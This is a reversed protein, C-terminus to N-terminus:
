GAKGLEHQPTDVTTDTGNKNGPYLYTPPQERIRKVRTLLEECLMNMSEVAKGRKKYRGVPLRHSVAEPYHTADPITVTFVDDCYYNRLVSEFTKHLSRRTVKNLLYGLLRLKPNPGAIAEDIIQQIHVVGQVGYDEPQFPVLVFESALLANWSLLNLTPRCDILIVDFADKVEEVFFRLSLQYDGQLTPQPFDFKNLEWSGPVISVGAVPTSVILDDPEPDLDDVFLSAVTQQWALNATQQSGFFGQTLNAQPDMDVLLVRLDRDVLPASLHQCTSTKGVGGKQNIVSIIIPDHKM